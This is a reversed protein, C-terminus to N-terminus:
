EPSSLKRPTSRPPVATANAMTWRNGTSKNTSASGCAARTMTRDKSMAPTIHFRPVHYKPRGTLLECVSM